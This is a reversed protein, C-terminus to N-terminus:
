DLGLIVGLRNVDRNGKLQKPHYQTSTGSEIKAISYRGGKVELFGAIHTPYSPANQFSKYFNVFDKHMWTDPSRDSVTQWGGMARICSHIVEDDFQVSDYYGHEKIGKLLLTWAKDARSEDTEQPQILEIIECPKPFFRSSRLISTLAFKIDEIGFDILVKFYIGVLQDTLERSYAAAITAMLKAFEVRDEANM